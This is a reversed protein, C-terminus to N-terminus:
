RDVEPAVIDLSAIVAVLDAIMLGPSLADIISMAAFSGTRVHCRYPFESGDSVAYWGMDGRASEVRIYAEGAPPKFKRPVKAIVPGEPIQAFCQRLIKVSETMERIRVIYRDFCDGTTGVEGSGVPVKFELAPYVSYPEDRRVDYDVGSARLNPGVLNYNIAMERPVIAVDALREVYIKNWTILDEFEKLMLEFNDLFVVCREAFGPPLDWAVGGIRMYNYTLRAGCLEELLDNIVERERIAHFFPTAAGIDLIMTGVSLLHSAIRNFEAAIVRCYEGRKPVEIGAMKECVMGWGQNCFMAAVYDVRDTYPMFGHYGVKESIKEISRHLYGVDPIAERMVEGDAKIVFRLVGHTSPHQPGMNLTMEETELGAENERQIEVEFGSLGM